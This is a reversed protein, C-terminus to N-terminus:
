ALTGTLADLQDTAAGWGQHFSMAEHRACTEANWHRAEARYLTSSGQPTFTIVGTFFPEAAPEWARVYADTFVLRQEPIVELYVGHNPVVEGNPGQMLVYSSGGSRVDLVAESVGWPKPCFWQRLLTPDTWCRWLQAPTAALTRELVLTHAPTPTHM